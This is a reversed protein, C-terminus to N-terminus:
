HQGERGREARRMLGYVRRASLGTEQMIELLAAGNQRARYLVGGRLETMGEYLRWLERGSVTCNGWREWLGNRAWWRRGLAPGLDGLAPIHACPQGEGRGDPRPPTVTRGYRVLRRITLVDAGALDAIQQHDAGTLTYIDRLALARLHLTRRLSVGFVTEAETAARYHWL